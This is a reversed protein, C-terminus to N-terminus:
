FLYFLYGLCECMKVSPDLYSFVVPHTAIYLSPIVFFGRGFLVAMKLASAHATFM